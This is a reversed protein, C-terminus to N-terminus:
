KPHDATQDPPAPPQRDFRHCWSQFQAREQPTMQQLTDALVTVGSKRLTTEAATLAEMAKQFRASDFPEGAMAAMAESRASRVAGRLPQLTRQADELTARFTARREQPLSRVFGHLGEKSMVLRVVNLEGGGGFRGGRGHTVFMGVVAGAIILNLALSGILLWSWKRPPPLDAQPVTM